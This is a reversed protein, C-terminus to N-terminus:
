SQRDKSAIDNAHDLAGALFFPVLLVWGLWYHWSVDHMWGSLAHAVAVISSFLFLAVKWM